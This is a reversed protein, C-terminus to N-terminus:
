GGHIPQFVNVNAGRRMKDDPKLIRGEVVVVARQSEPIEMVALLDQATAGDPLEVEIGQPHGYDTLRGSLTGHLKVRVKM